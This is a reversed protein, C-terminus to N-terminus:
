SRRKQNVSRAMRTAAISQEDTQVFPPPPVIGSEAQFPNAGKALKLFEVAARSVEWGDSKAQALLATCNAPAIEELARIRAREANVAVQVAQKKEEDKSEYQKKLEEIQKKLEEVQKKLEENEKRLRDMEMMEEQAKIGQSQSQITLIPPKDAMTTEEKLLDQFAIIRDAIGSALAQEGIFIRGDAMDGLVSEISIGRNQTIDNVFVSYVYDVQSQLVERGEPSLPKYQSDMRKFKGAYIETTKIGRQEEAGSIDRHMAVIGISGMQATGSAICIENCASAIWYAASFCTSNAIATFKKRARLSFILNAVEQVGEVSGGPSDFDLIIERINDDEVLSSINKILEETVIGGYFLALLSGRQEIIGHIPIVAKGYIVEYPKSETWASESYTLVGDKQCAIAEIEHLRDATIAWARNFICPQIASPKDSAPEFSLGKHEECHGRAEQPTWTEKPYRFAQDAWEDGKAKVIGRIVFYKKGNHDRELRSFSEEKFEGPQRLRCSHENPYPM